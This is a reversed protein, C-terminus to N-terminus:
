AGKHWIILDMSVRFLKDPSDEDEYEDRESDKFVGDFITGSYPGKFGSLRGTVARAVGKASGYTTGYCDAQVRGAVLGNPGSNSVDPIATIVQLVVYPKAVGQPARMWYVRAPATGVLATLPAHNILLAVLSEEM